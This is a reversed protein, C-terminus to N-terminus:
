DYALHCARGATVIAYLIQLLAISNYLCARKYQHYRPECNYRFTVFATHSAVQTCAHALIHLVFVLNKM